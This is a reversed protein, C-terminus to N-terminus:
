LGSTIVSPPYVKFGFKQGGVSAEAMLGGKSLTFVSVGDVYRANSSAGATAAVASAQAAMTYEGTKFAALAKGTELFVVETYAQGGLALGVTLQTLTVRGVAVGKEFLVGEGHAGGVGVAGKGVTAFVAYGASGDFFRDLKPDAKELEKIAQRAQGVAAEQEKKAEAKTEGALALSAPLSMSVALMTSLITRM